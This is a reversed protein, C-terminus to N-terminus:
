VFTSKPKSLFVHIAYRILFATVGGGVVLLLREAAIDVGESVSFAALTILFCRLAFGMIYSKFSVLTLMILLACVAYFWQTTPVFPGILLGTVVGYFAGKARNLLKKGSEGTSITIVSVASWLFWEGHDIHFFTVLAALVMESLVIAAVAEFVEVREGLYFRGVSLRRLIAYARKKSQIRTAQSLSINWFAHFFLVIFLALPAFSMFVEYVNWVDGYTESHLECALYVAPIFTYTGLSRIHAGYKMTYISLGGLFAVSLIFFLPHGFAAYIISFFLLILVFHILVGLMGAKIRRSAIYLSMTVLGAHLMMANDLYLYLAFVTGAIWLARWIAPLKLENDVLAVAKAILHFRQREQNGRHAQAAGIFDSAGGRNGCRM